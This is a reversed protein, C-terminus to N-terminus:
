ELVTCNKGAHKAKYMLADARCILADIDDGERVMTMGASVTVSLRQAGFPVETGAVMHRFREGIGRMEEKSNVMFVGVFEEGGWRSFLDNTRLSRQLTGAIGILVADGAQHGHTDNFARFNDVDAFLLCFRRNFRHYEELKYHVYNEMYRRNPLRTLWDTYSTKELREILDDDYVRPSLVSFIEAGGEIVGDDDFVPIINTLIPIRYGKKHRLYVEAQRYEGDTLTASLPCSMTCLPTGDKDIHKLIDDQCRSGVVDAAAYGTIEEAARNWYTIRRENDVFYVGDKMNALIAEYLKQQHM